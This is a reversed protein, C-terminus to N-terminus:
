EIVEDARALLSPPITLGLAKAAKLNIVLEYKTPQIVPLDAPKEGKIIRGVYAGAQRYADAISAGYSMLCGDTVYAQAECVSPLSSESALAVIHKRWSFLIPDSGVLVAAVRYTAFSAFAAAITDETGVHATYLKLGMRQAAAEADENSTRAHALLGIAKASPVMERLLELRKAQMERLLLSVGTVNGGPRGLNAVLGNEVPDDGSTFVIPITTTAAKAALAAPPGGAFIVAVNRDVLDTALAPLRDYRGEAWHYEITVNRGEVFGTESLGNLFGSLIFPVRSSASLFGIAPVAQQQGRAVMPWAVVGGLGAIFARRNTRGVQM